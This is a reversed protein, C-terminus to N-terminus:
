LQTFVFTETDYHMKPANAITNKNTIMVEHDEGAGGRAAPSRIGPGPNCIRSFSGFDPSDM